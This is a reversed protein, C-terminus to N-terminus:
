IMRSLTGAPTTANINVCASKQQELPMSEAFLRVIPPWIMAQFLGNLAWVASMTGGAIVGMALNCCGSLVLGTFIMTYPSIYQSVSGCFIQGLAYCIFYGTSVMGAQSLTLTGQGTIAGMVASYNYRGIYATAYAAWSLLFLASGQRPEPLRSCTKAKLNRM